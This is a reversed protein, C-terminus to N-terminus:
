SDIRYDKVIIEIVAEKQTVIKASLKKLILALELDEKVPNKKLLLDRYEIKLDKLSKNKVIDKLLKGFDENLTTERFIKLVVYDNSFNAELKIEKNYISYFTNILALFNLRFKLSYREKLLNEFELLSQKNNEIQISM